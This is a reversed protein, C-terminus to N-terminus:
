LIDKPANKEGLRGKMHTLIEKKHLLVESKIVGSNLVLTKSSPSYKVKERPIKIEFLDEVVDCFAEIVTKQPAILTKKYKEFLGGVKVMEGRGIRKM